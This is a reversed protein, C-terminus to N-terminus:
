NEITDIYVSRRKKIRIQILFAKSTYLYSNHCIYIYGPGLFGDWYCCANRTEPDQNRIGNVLLLFWLEKFFHSIGPSLYFVYLLIRFYRTIGSLLSTNYFLSFLVSWLSSSRQFPCLVWDFLEWYSFSSCNSCYLLLTITWIIVYIDRFECQYLYINLYIPLFSLDGM